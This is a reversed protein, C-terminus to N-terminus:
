DEGLKAVQWAVRWEGIRSSPFPKLTSAPPLSSSAQRHRGVQPSKCPRGGLESQYRVRWVTTLEDKAVDDVEVKRYFERRM